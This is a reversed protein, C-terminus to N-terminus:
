AFLSDSQHAEQVDICSELRGRIISSSHTALILQIEPSADIVADVFREQWRLHLSLEPEDIILVNARKAQKNFALHTLIVVLQREGSSLASVPRSQSDMTVFVQLNGSGDFSVEKDSDALFTNVSKLYRHIPDYLMSIESNYREILAVLEDIQRFRPNITWWEQLRQIIKENPSSKSLEKITSSLESFIVRARAFFPLVMQNIKDTSIGIQSLSDPLVHEYRTAKQQTEKLENSSPLIGFATGHEKASLRFAALVIEQKLNDTRETRNALYQRFAREALM